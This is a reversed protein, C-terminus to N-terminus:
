AEKEVTVMFPGSMIISYQPRINASVEWWFPQFHLGYRTTWILVHVQVGFYVKKFIM